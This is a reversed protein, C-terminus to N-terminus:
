GNQLRKRRISLYAIIALTVPIVILLTTWQAPTMVGRRSYDGRFFEFAFRGASYLLVYVLFRRGELIRRREMIYIVVAVLMCWFSELLQVPFCPLPQAAASDLLGSERQIEMVTNGAAPYQIGLVGDWVKGYCCGNFLCGFRALAHAAPLSPATLDAIQAPSWKRRRCYWFCAIVTLIFGGQFVLGGEWVRFIGMFDNAFYVDWFRRVYELRAGVVGSIICVVLLDAIDQANLSYRKARWCMTLYFLLAALAAFLGYWRLALPGLAFIEPDPM